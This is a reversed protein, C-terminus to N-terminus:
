LGRFRDSQHWYLFRWCCIIAKGKRDSKCNLVTKSRIGVIHYDEICNLLEEESMAGAHNEINVYGRKEFDKIASIHVGELLLIKIKDKPFSHVRSM